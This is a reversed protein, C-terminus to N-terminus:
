YLAELRLTTLQKNYEYSIDKSSQKTYDHALSFKFYSGLRKSLKLGLTLMKESGRTAKQEGTDTLTGSLSFMATLSKWMNPWLYDLRMLYSDTSYLDLNTTVLDGQLTTIIIHGNKRQWVQDLYIITSKSSLDDSFSTFQKLKFKFTTDGAAFLRFKEGFSNILSRGYFIKQHLGNRDRATYDYELDYLFSGQSHGWRHDIEMRFAPSISYTDNVFVESNTQDNYKLSTYRIEPTFIFQREKVSRYSAFLGWGRYWSSFLTGSVAGENAENVSTVNTDYSYDLNAEFTFGKKGLFRGSKLQLPHRNYKYQVEELKRSLTRGQSSKPNIAEGNKLLPIIYKEVIRGRDRKGEILGILIDALRLYAAQRLEPAAEKDKIIKLYNKKVGKFNDKFEEMSGLYYYSYFPKFNAKISQKFYKSAESFDNSAYYVQGMEYYIEPPSYNNKLSKKFHDKAKEFDQMKSYCTARLYHNLGRDKKRVSSSDLIKIAQIYQGQRFLKYFKEHAENAWLPSPSIFCVLIILLSPLQIIKKVGM